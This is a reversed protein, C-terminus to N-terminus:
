IEWLVLGVTEIKVGKRKLNTIFEKNEKDSILDGSVVLKKFEAGALVQVLPDTTTYVLQLEEVNLGSLRLDDVECSTLQLKTMDKHEAIVKQIDENSFKCKDFAFSKCDFNSTDPM